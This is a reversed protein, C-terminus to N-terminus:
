VIRACTTGLFFPLIVVRRDDKVVQFEVALEGNWFGIQLFKNGVYHM